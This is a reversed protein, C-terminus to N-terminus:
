IKINGQSDLSTTVGQTINANVPTTAGILTNNTYKVTKSVSTNICNASTNSVIITCNSITCDTITSHINIGHGSANNWLCYIACNTNFGNWIIQMAINATSTAQCGFFNCTGSGNSGIGVSSTSYGSCNYATTVNFLKIGYGATSYGACNFMQCSAGNVQIADNGSSYASCNSIVGSGNNQRIAVFGTSYATCNFMSNGSIAYSTGSYAVCHYTNLPNNIAIYTGEARSHYLNCGSGGIAEGTSETNIFHGNWVSCQTPNFMTSGCSSSFISGNLYLTGTQGTVLAGSGGAGTTGGTRIVRYNYIYFTSGAPSTNNTRMAFSGGAVNLTYSRGNGNIIVGNKLIIETASTETYDTLVDITQGASAANIAAQLTGYFTPNGTSDKIAFVGNSGNSYPSSIAGASDKYYVLNDALNLFYTSNSVSAFDASSDVRVTYRLGAMPTGTVTTVAM